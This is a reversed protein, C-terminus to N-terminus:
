KKVYYWRNYKKGYQLTSDPWEVYHKLSVYENLQNKKVLERFLFSSRVRMTEPDLHPTNVVEEFEFPQLSGEKLKFKGVVGRRYQTLHGVPRNLLFYYFGNESKELKELSFNALKQVYYAKFQEQFRTSDTSGPANEAVFTIINTLLSDQQSQSFYYAPEDKEHCSALFIISSFLFINTIIKKM